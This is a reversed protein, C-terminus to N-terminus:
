SVCPGCCAAPRKRPRRCWCCTPGPGRFARWTAYTALSRSKGSQRPAVIAVVAAPDTLARLQFDALPGGVVEGFYGLDDRARALDPM